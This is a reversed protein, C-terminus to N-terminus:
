ATCLQHTITACQHPPDMSPHPHPARLSSQRPVSQFESQLHSPPPATYCSPTAPNPPAHQLNQLLTRKQTLSSGSSFRPRRLRVPLAPPDSGTGVGRRHSGPTAGTAIVTSATVTYRHPERHDRGNWQSIYQLINSYIPIYQFINSYITILHHVSSEQPQRSASPNGCIPVRIWPAMGSGACTSTWYRVWVLAGRPHRARVWLQQRTCRLMM